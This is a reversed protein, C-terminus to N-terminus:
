EALVSEAYLLRGNLGDYFQVTVSPRPYAIWRIEKNKEKNAVVNNVQVVCYVKQNYSDNYDQYTSWRIDFKEGRYEWPGNAPRGGESLAKANGSSHPGSAFEWVNKGSKAVFSNHLDGTLVLVPKGLTKWFAIMESREQPFGSWSDEQKGPWDDLGYGGEVDVIHPILLNVSSVVILFDAKSTRMKEKLWVKQKDGLISQGPKDPEATIPMQRHSRTDLFFFECNALRWNFYSLRGVSYANQATEKAPPSFQLRHSDLVKNIEYVGANPVGGKGDYRKLHRWAIDDGWHIHLNSTEELNIQSFDTTKDIMVNSNKTFNGLGFSIKQGFGVPNSWGLYDYWAQVGIDRYVAIRTRHGISGAGRSDDLIEHDDFVFFSPVNRHWTRLPGCLDFYVKYNQWAGVIHPVISMLEPIECPSKGVQKLWEVVQYGREMEYLWDGNLISFDVEKQIRDVMTQYVPIKEAKEQNGCAFEFKFNFLGDPNSSMNKYVSAEPLTRFSGSLDSRGSDDVTFVRYFYSTGPNLGQLLIWGTNDRELMTVVPDSVMDPKDQELGYSVRFSGPVNTRAWIGMSKSGPRGVVPGHTIIIDAYLLHCFVFILLLSVIWKQNNM